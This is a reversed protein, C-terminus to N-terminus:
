KAFYFTEPHNPQLRIAAYGFTGKEPVNRLKKDVLIPKPIGGLTGIMWLNEANSRLIEKAANNRAAEDTTSVMTEYSKLLAKVPQPPEEGGTGGTQYWHAWEVGWMQSWIWTFPVFWYPTRLFLPPFMDLNWYGVEVLNGVGRQNQLANSNMKFTAKIGIDKLYNVILELMKSKDMYGEIALALQAGDPRLRWGQSDKKLGMEDLLANAKAKDYEVYAKAFEPEYFPASSQITAQMPKGLGFYLLKNIEERNISYSFAMRFRKDQIIKRLVPDLITQNPMLILENAEGSEWTMTRYGGTAENQKYIPLKDLSTSHAFIDFDGSIAKLNAVEVDEVVVATVKDVYPLQNGAPDVKWYYPNREFEVVSPSKSVVVYAGLTPLGIAIPLGSAVLGKNNFLQVWNEFGESKAMATLKEKDAYKPHFQKMYHKPFYFGKLFGEYHSLLGAAIPYSKAFDLQVTYDDIKKMKFFENGVTWASPKTPFLENNLFMDEYVFMIDDATFPEGDSWKIGKHLYLILTRGDNKFEWRDAINPAISNYDQSILLVTETTLATQPDGYFTTPALAAVKINGGYTGISELPKVVVPEPPLRKDVSPIKGDKVLSALMPAESYKGAKVLITSGKSEEEAGSAFVQVCLFSLVLSLAATVMRVRNM